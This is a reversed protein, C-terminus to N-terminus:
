YNEHIVTHAMLAKRQLILNGVELGKQVASSKRKNDIIAAIISIFQERNAEDLKLKRIYEHVSEQEQTSLSNWKNVNPPLRVVPRNLADKLSSIEKIVRNYTLSKTYKGTGTELSSLYYVIESGDRFKCVEQFIQDQDKVAPVTTTAEM